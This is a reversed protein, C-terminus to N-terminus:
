RFRVFPECEMIKFYKLVIVAIVFVLVYLELSLMRTECIMCNKNPRQREVLFAGGLLLGYPIHRGCLTHVHM